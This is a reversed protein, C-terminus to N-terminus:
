EQTESSATHSEGKRGESPHLRAPTPLKGQRHEGASRGMIQFSGGLEADSCRVELLQIRIKQGGWAVPNQGWPCRAPTRVIAQRPDPCLRTPVTSCLGEFDQAAWRLTKNSSTPQYMSGGSEGKGKVLMLYVDLTQRSNVM